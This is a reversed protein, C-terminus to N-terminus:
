LIRDNEFDMKIKIEKLKNGIYELCFIISEPNLKDEIMILEKELRKSVDILINQINDSYKKNIETKYETKQSIKM